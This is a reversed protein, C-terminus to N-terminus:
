DLISAIVNTIKQLNVKKLFVQEACLRANRGMELLEARDKETFEVFAQLLKQKDSPPVVIGCNYTKILQAAASDEDLSAIIPRGALFYATLKSPLATKAIGPKLALVLVNSNWEVNPVQDPTVSDFLVGEAGLREVLEVCGRKNPGDGYIYLQSEKVASAIYSEILYEINSSDNVSGAYAFKFIEGFDNPRQADFISDEQWNNVIVFKDRAIDRTQSLYDAMENSITRVYTAHSLYYRDIPLALLKIIKSLIPRNNLKALLSEPYIDQVPVIYPVKRSVAYRAIMFLGILHWSCNYILDAEINNEKIYRLTARAFSFSERLRGFINSKPCTYSEVRIHKFERELPLVNKYEKGYPRSPYPTIVTVDYKESLAVAMDYNLRASM